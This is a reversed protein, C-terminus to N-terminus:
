ITCALKILALTQKQSASLDYEAGLGIQWHEGLDHSLVGTWGQSISQDLKARTLSGSLALEWSSDWPEPTYFTVRSSIEHDPFGGLTDSFGSIGLAIARPSNLRSEFTALDKDYSYKEYSVQVSIWALPRTVAELKVSKQQILQAANAPVAVVTGRHNRM